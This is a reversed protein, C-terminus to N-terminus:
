QSPLLKNIGLIFLYINTINEIIFVHLYCILLRMENLDSETITPNSKILIQVYNRGIGVFIVLFLLPIVVWDRISPDLVLLKDSSGLVLNLSSLILFSAFYAM